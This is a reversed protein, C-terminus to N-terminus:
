SNLAEAIRRIRSLDHNTIVVRRLANMSDNRHAGPRNFTCDTPHAHACAGDRM